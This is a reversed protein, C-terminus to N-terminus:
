VYIKGIETEITVMGAVKTKKVAYLPVYVIEVNSQPRLKATNQKCLLAGQCIIQRRAKKDLINDPVICVVHCSSIGSGAHFWLDRTTEMMDIVGFNDQANQGIYFVINQKIAPIYIEITKMKSQKYHAHSM